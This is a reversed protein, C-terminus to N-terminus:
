LRCRQLWDSPLAANDSPLAPHTSGSSNAMALNGCPVGRLSRQATVSTVWTLKLPKRGGVDVGAASSYSSHPTLGVNIQCLTGKTKHVGGVGRMGWLGYVWLELSQKRTFPTTEFTGHLWCCSSRSRAMRWCLLRSLALTEACSQAPGRRNSKQEKHGNILIYFHQSDSKTHTNNQHTHAGLAICACKAVEDAEVACVYLCTYWELTGMWVATIPDNWEQM